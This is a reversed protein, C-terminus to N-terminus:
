WEGTKRFKVMAAKSFEKSARDFDALIEDSSKGSTCRATKILTKCENSDMFRSAELINKQDAEPIVLFGHKDAHILQGPLVKRGFVEVECNWRVPYSHAHGVCLGRALAKFGANNMEDTDRIGGDTITGM